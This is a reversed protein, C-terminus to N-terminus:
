MGTHRWSQNEVRAEERNEGQLTENAATEEILVQVSILAVHQHRPGQNM